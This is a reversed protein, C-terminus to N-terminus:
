CCRGVTYPAAYPQMMAAGYGSMNMPLTYPAAYPQMMAAGYGAASMPAAYLIVVPMTFPSISTAMPAAYLPQASTASVMPAAYLPQAGACPYFTNAMGYQAAVSQAM